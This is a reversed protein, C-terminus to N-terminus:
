ENGPPSFLYGTFGAAKGTFSLSKKCHWWPAVVEGSPPSAGLKTQDCRVETASWLASVVLTRGSPVPYEVKCPEAAPCSQGAPTGGPPLVQQVPLPIPERLVIPRSPLREARAADREARRTALAKARIELEEQSREQALTPSTAISAVALIHLFRIRM